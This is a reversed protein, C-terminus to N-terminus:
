DYQLLAEGSPIEIVCLVGETLFLMDGSGHLERSILRKVVRTGFGALRSTAAAMEVGDESWELHLRPSEPGTFWWIVRLRAQSQSLAGFKIANTTLEHIVLSMLEASKASLRVDPGQVLVPARRVGQALFEDLILSELDMGGAVPSLAARGIASLRGALHMASDCPDQPRSRMYFAISRFLALLRSMRRRSAANGASEDLTM